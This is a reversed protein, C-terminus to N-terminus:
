ISPKQGCWDGLRERVRSLLAFDLRKKALGRRWAPPTLRGQSVKFTRVSVLWSGTLVLWGGLEHQPSALVRWSEGEGDMPLPYGFPRPHPGSPGHKGFLVGAWFGLIRGGVECWGVWIKVLYKELIKVLQERFM